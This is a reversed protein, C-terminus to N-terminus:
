KGAENGEDAQQLELFWRLLAALVPLLKGPNLGLAQASADAARAGITSTKEAKEVCKLATELAATDAGKEDDAPEAGGTGHTGKKAM